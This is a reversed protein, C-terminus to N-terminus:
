SDVETINTKIGVRDVLVKTKIGVRDVLEQPMEDMGPGGVFVPSQKKSNFCSTRLTRDLSSNLGDLYPHIYEFNFGLDDQLCVAM